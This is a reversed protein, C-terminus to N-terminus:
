EVYFTYLLLNRMFIENIKWEHTFISIYRFELYLINHILLKM